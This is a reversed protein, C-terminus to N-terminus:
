STKTKVATGEGDGVGEGCFPGAVLSRAGSFCFQRYRLVASWLM